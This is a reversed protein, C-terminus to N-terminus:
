KIKQGNAPTKAWGRTVDFDLLNGSLLQKERENYFSITREM